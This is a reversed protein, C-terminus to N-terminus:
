GASADVVLLLQCSAERINSQLSGGASRSRIATNGCSKLIAQSPSACSLWARTTGRPPAVYGLLDPSWAGYTGDEAREVVVVYGNM